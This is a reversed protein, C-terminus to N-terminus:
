TFYYIVLFVIVSTVFMGGFFIYKDAETRREILRMVTNSMGLTSSIDLLKRKFGKIMNKQDKLNELMAQGQGLLDDLSKNSRILGDQQQLARDILISTDSSGAAAANTTFKTQLLRERNLSELELSQRKNKISQTSSQLHRVDSKLQDVRIKANYRRNTPEKHVLVDLREINKHIVQIGQHIRSELPAGENLPTKELGVLCEQIDQISRNTEHYLYEMGYARVAIESDWTRAQIPLVKKHHRKLEHRLIVDNSTLM